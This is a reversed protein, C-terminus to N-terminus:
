GKVLTLVETCGNVRAWWLAERGAIKDDPLRLTPDHELPAQV